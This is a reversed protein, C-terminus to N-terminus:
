QSNSKKTAERKYIFITILLTLISIVTGIILYPPIYILKLHHTGPNLKAGLFYRGSRISTVQHGNDFIKWGDSYPISTFLNPQDRTTKLTGVINISSHHRIKLTHQKLKSITQKFSAVHLENFSLDNLLLSIKKLNFTIKVPKSKSNSAIAMTIPKRFEANETFHHSNVIIDVNKHSLGTGLTMYTPNKTTPTFTVDVSAPKGLDQKTLFADNLKQPMNVNHYDIKFYKVYTFLPDKPDESLAKNLLDTQYDIPKFTTIHNMRNSSAWGLGFAYPNQYTNAFNTGSIKSYYQLDQRVSATQLPNGISQGNNISWYKFNLLADTVLSGNIYSANGSSVPQGLTGLANIQNTELSSSFHSGGNYNAQMPDDKTRLYSTGIRYFGSSDINKISNINTTLANSYNSFESQTVYAIKNLSLFLNTGVDIFVFSMIILAVPWTKTQSNNFASIFVLTTLIFVGSIVIQNISLYDGNKKLAILSTGIVLIFTLVTILSSIWIKPSGVELNKCAILIMWFIFIFSFRYPYWWPFQMAHWVLDLPAFCLSIILFLTVLATKLRTKLDIKANFFYTIFSILFFSAIYINPLGDSMQHFSFAGTILKTLMNLPFYEFAWKLTTETYNAKSQLLTWLTPMWLWASLGIISVWSILFAKISKQLNEKTVYWLFFILSFIAIMFAMYYNVILMITMSIIFFRKIQKDVLWILSLIILPLIIPADLWLLNLQNAIAFGSLSYAVSASLMILNNLKFLKTLMWYFSLSALSYKLLTVLMIGATITSRPFLLLVLNLPSMLYYSWTSTMEGGLGKSFSYWISLPDHLIAHRFYAFFEVYQQGMDVTLLSSNGFPFMQRSFFYLILILFPVFFSGFLFLKKSKSHNNEPM